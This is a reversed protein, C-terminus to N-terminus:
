DEEGIEELHTLARLVADYADRKLNGLSELGFGAERMLREAISAAECAEDHKGWAENYEDQLAELEKQLADIRGEAAGLRERLSAKEPDSSM